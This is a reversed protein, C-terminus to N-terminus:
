WISIRDIAAAPPRARRGALAMSGARAVHERGDGARLRLLERPHRGGDAARLRLDRAEPAITKELSSIILDAAENWGLYRFMMEGSLIVRDRTSRTRTPTSRRPATPRRSSRTAPSTTSTPARRSASAASRRPWPTPSTTATSTRAHRHRRVRAAPHPDAAPLRRRHRGQHGRREAAQMGRAATSDRRRRVGGPGARYGWDRFAGETYKMINGKHVLTVSAAAAACPTSSRPVSSGSAHGGRVGAQHRHREDRPLPDQHRGARRQLFRDAQRAEASGAACEIGAYIDETNERFIVMNVDEPRKVPSPVGTFYRVPRVCAYLDLQQRLAVNLSRFGGGVPTTLPGKIAVLHTSSPPSRRTPCGPTSRAGEVERRRLGRVLRHQAQRRLRKEVAGDFVLQSPVGSTPAPATARSSRSSPTTRSRCRATACPSPTVRCPPRSRPPRCSVLPPPSRDSFPSASTGDSASPQFYPCPLAM